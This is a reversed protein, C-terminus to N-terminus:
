KKSAIDTHKQLSAADTTSLHSMPDVIERKSFELDIEFEPFFQPEGADKKAFLGGAVSMSSVLKSSKLKLESFFVQTRPDNSDIEQSQTAKLSTLLEAVLLNDFATGQINIGRLEEVGGSATGSAVSPTAGPTQTTPPTTETAAPPPTAPTAPRAATKSAGGSFSLRKFWLGEPKLSQLHELVILPMYRSVQAGTLPAMEDILEKTSTIESNARELEKVKTDLETIKATIATTNSVIELRQQERMEFYVYVALYSLGGILLLMAVDPLYWWPNQLEEEPTLNIKIM